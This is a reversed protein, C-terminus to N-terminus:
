KTGESVPYGPVNCLRALDALMRVEIADRAEEPTLGRVYAWRLCWTGRGDVDLGFACYSQAGKPTPTCGPLSGAEADTVRLVVPKCNNRILDAFGRALVKRACSNSMIGPRGDPQLTNAAMLAAIQDANKKARRITARNLNQM